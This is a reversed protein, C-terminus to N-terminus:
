KEAQLADWTERYIDRVAQQVALDRSLKRRIILEVVHTKDTLRLVPSNAWSDLKLSILQELTVFQLQDSVVAPAPFPVKCGNKLVKGETLLNIIVGYRKDQLQHEVKTDREFRGASDTTAFEAAKLVDPVIFDVDLTVGPYGYEQVALSGAVLHATDHRALAAAVARATERFFSSENNFMM